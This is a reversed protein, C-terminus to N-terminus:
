GKINNLKTLLMELQGNTTTLQTITGGDLTQPGLSTAVTASILKQISDKLTSVADCLAAYVDGQQGNIKLKAGNAVKVEINGSNLMKVESKANGKDDTCYVRVEGPKIETKLPVAIAAKVGGEMDLVLTKEDKLPRSEFNPMSWAESKAADDAYIEYSTIIQHGDSEETKIVKCIVSM